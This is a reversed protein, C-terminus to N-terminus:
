QKRKFLAVFWQFNLIIHTTVFLTVLPANIEHVEHMWGIHFRSMGLGSVIQTLIVLFLIPNVIKLLKQKM